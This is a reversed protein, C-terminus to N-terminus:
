VADSRRVFTPGPGDIPRAQPARASRALSVLAHSTEFQMDPLGEPSFWQVELIEPSSPQPAVIDAHAPRARFVLDIRHSRADVVVAPEGLLEVRIGVEEFVERVVGDSPTEHRNLLGGPVGWRPRYSHRVFLLAGDSREIFAMAGVNYNPTFVRVIERRVRVPVYRFVRLVLLYIHAKM